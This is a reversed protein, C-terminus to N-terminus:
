TCEKLAAETRIGWKRGFVKDNRLEVIRHNQEERITFAFFAVPAMPSGIIHIKDEGKVIFPMLWESTALALCEELQLASRDSKVETVAALSLMYRYGKPKEEANAAVAIGILIIAAFQKWM